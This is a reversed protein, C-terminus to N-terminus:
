HISKMVSENIPLEGDFYQTHHLVSYFAREVQLASTIMVITHLLMFLGGLTGQSHWELGDDYCILM